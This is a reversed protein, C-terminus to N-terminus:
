FSSFHITFNQKGNKELSFSAPFDNDETSKQLTKKSTVKILNKSHLISLFTSSRPPIGTTKSHYDILSIAWIQLNPFNFRKYIELYSIKRHYKKQNMLILLLMKKWFPMKFTAPVKKFFRTTMVRSKLKSKASSTYEKENELIIKQFIEWCKGYNRTFYIADNNFNYYFLAYKQFFFDSNLPFM